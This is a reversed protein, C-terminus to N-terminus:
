PNIKIINESSGHERIHDRCDSCIGDVMMPEYCYVCKANNDCAPCKKTDESLWTWCKPCKYKGRCDDCIRRCCFMCYGNYLQWTKTDCSYCFKPGSVTNPKNKDFKPGYGELGKECYMCMAQYYSNNNGM